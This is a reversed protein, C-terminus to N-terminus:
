LRGVFLFIARFFFFSFRSSPFTRGVSRFVDITKDFSFNDSNKSPISIRNSLRITFYSHTFLTLCLPHGISPFIGTILPWYFPWCDVVMYEYALIISFIFKVTIQLLTPRLTFRMCNQNNKVIGYQKM